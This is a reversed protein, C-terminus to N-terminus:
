NARRPGGVADAWDDTAKVWALRLLERLERSSGDHCSEEYAARMRESENWLDDWLKKIRLRADEVKQLRTINDDDPPM